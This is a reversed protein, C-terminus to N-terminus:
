EAKGCSAVDVYNGDAAGDRVVRVEYGKARLLALCREHQDYGHSSLLITPRDEALLKTAGTLVDYEAGEVDIKMFSPHPISGAAILEDLAATTVEIEGSPALGGMAPNPAAAFRAMGSRSSVALPLVQVNRVANLELHRQLLALNRPLPEFAIVAGHGSLKAALLTYFGVNAGIDYVVDGPRIADAFIAQAEHEYRGLWCGHTASGSIWRYGRLEGLLIPVVRGPRLLRLPLRIFRAFLSM